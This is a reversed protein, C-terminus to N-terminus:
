GLGLGKSRSHGSGAVCFTKGGDTRSAPVHILSMGSPTLTEMLEKQVEEFRSLKERIADAETKYFSPDSFASNLAWQEQELKEIM